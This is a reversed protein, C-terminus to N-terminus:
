QDAEGLPWTGTADHTGVVYAPEATTVARSGNPDGPELLAEPGRMVVPSEGMYVDRVRQDRLVAEPQGQALVSGNAMVILEDCAATMLGMDHDILLVGIAYQAAFRRLEEALALSESRALGAGPEDLVLVTPNMAFARAVGALRRQALSLSSPKQNLVASLGFHEIADAASQPFGHKNRKSSDSALLINDGVTLDEFLEIAQFGRGLGSRARAYTPKQALETSGLQVNGTGSSRLYGCVVDLFTTKGAGNPGVVGVVLGPQVVLSLQDVAVVGGFAVHIDTALLAEGKAPAVIPTPLEIQQPKTTRNFVMFGHEHRLVAAILGLGAILNYNNQFWGWGSTLQYVIGGLAIAGVVLGGSIAGVGALVALIVLNISAASDFSVFSIGSQQFALLVGAVGALAASLVFATLKSQAVNVGISASARENTRMALLRHGFSAHRVWYVFGLCVLLWALVVFGYREPHTAADVTLGFLKPTPPSVGSFGGALQPSSFVMSEIALGLALTVVALNIGRIRLAPLGVLFGVVAGTLAGVLPAVIFPVDLHIAAQAAILGGLGAIAMQALSMQYAYGLLVVMSLGLIAFCMSTITASLWLNSGHVLLFIVVGLALVAPLVHFKGRAVAPAQLAPIRNNARQRQLVLALVVLLLPVGSALGPTQVYRTIVSEAVGLILGGLLALPYSDFKGLLAAALAPILVDGVNSPNLSVIPVILAGVIGALACGLAWNLAGLVHPSAGLAMAGREHESLARTRLPVRARVSWLELAATLVVAVGLLILRDEGVVAGFVRVGSDPIWSPVVVTFSTDFVRSLLAVLVASLGLTMVMKSLQTRHRIPRILVLYTVAGGLASIVLVTAIALGGSWHKNRFEVYLYAGWTAFAGHALNLVGTGRHITVIGLASIAYLGGIGLGILVAQLM